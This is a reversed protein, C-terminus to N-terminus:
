KLRVMEDALICGGVGLRKLLLMWNLGLLQYPKLAAAAGGGGCAAVVEAHGVVALGGGGDPITVPVASGGPTTPPVSSGEHGAVAAASSQARGEVEARIRAAIQECKEVPSLKQPKGSCSLQQPQQQQPPALPEPTPRRATSAREATEPVVEAPLLLSRHCSDRSAEAERAAGRVRLRQHCPNDWPEQSPKECAM